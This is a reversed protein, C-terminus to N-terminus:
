RFVALKPRPYTHGGSSVQIFVGGVWLSGNVIRMRRVGFFYPSNTPGLAPNWAKDLAGSSYSVAMAHIRTIAGPLKCNITCTFHGGLYVSNGALALTDVDGEPRVQWVKRGTLDFRYARNSHGEQGLLIGSSTAVIDSGLLLPDDPTLSEIVPNFSRDLAGSSPSVAAISRHLHGNVTDFHGGVYLRNGNPSLALAHVAATDFAHFTTSFGRNLAGTVSNFSALRDRPSSFQGGVYLTSGSVVLSRVPGSTNAAFPLQVGSASFAAVHRVTVNDVSTFTGGAYVQVGNTALAYVVGNIRHLQFIPVPAGTRADLAALSKAKVRKGTPSVIDTFDGGIYVTGGASAIAYVAACNEKSKPGCSKFFGWTSDPREGVTAASAPSALAASALLSLLAVALPRRVRFTM